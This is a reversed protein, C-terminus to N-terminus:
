RWYPRGDKGAANKYLGQELFGKGAGGRACGELPRAKIHSIEGRRSKELEM